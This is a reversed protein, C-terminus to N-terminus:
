PLGLGLRRRLETPNVDESVLFMVVGEYKTKGNADTESSLHYFCLWRGERRIRVQETPSIIMYHDLILDPHGQGAVLSQSTTVLKNLCTFDDVAVQVENLSRKKAAVRARHVCNRILPDPLYDPSFVFNWPSRM